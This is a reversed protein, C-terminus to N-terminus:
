WLHLIVWLRNTIYPMLHSSLINCLSFDLAVWMSNALLYSTILSGLLCVTSNSVYQQDHSHSTFHSLTVWMRNQVYILYRLTEKCLYHMKESEPPNDTYWVVKDFPKWTVWRRNPMYYIHNVKDSSFASESVFQQHHLKSYQVELIFSRLAVWMRDTISHLPILSSHPLLYLAM